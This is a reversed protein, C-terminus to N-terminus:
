CSGGESRYWDRRESGIVGIHLGHQVLNGLHVVFVDLVQLVPDRQRRDSRFVAVIWLSGIVHRLQRALGPEGVDFNDRGGALGADESDDIRARGGGDANVEHVVHLLKIRGLPGRRRQFSLDDIFLPQALDAHTATGHILLTGLSGKEARQAREFGRSLFRRHVEHQDAFAFFLNARRVKGLNHSIGFDHRRQLFGHADEHRRCSLFGVAVDLDIEAGFAHDFQFQNGGAFLPSAPGLVVDVGAQFGSHVARRPVEHLGQVRQDLGVTM